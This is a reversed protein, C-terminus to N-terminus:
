KWSKKKKVNKWKKRSKQQVLSASIQIKLAVRNLHVQYVFFPIYKICVTQPQAYAFVQALMVVMLTVSTDLVEWLNGADKQNKQKTKNTTLVSWM